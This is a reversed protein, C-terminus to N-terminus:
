LANEKLVRSMVRVHVSSAHVDFNICCRLVDRCTKIFRSIRSFKIELFWFGLTLGSLLHYSGVVAIQIRSIMVM